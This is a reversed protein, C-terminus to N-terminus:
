EGLDKRKLRRPTTVRAEGQNLEIFSAHLVGGPRTSAPDRLQRVLSDFQQQAERLQGTVAELKADCSAKEEAAERKLEAIEKAHAEKTLRLEDRLADFDARMGGMHAQAAGLVAAALEEPTRRKNLYVEALKLFAAGIVAGVGGAGLESAINAAQTM